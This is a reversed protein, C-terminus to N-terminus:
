PSSVNGYLASKSKTSTEVLWVPDTGRVLRKKNQKSPTQEKPLSLLPVMVLNEELRHLGKGKSQM